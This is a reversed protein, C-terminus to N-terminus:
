KRNGAEGQLTGKTNHDPGAPTDIQMPAGIDVIQTAKKNTAATEDLQHSLNRAATNPIRDARESPSIATGTSPNIGQHSPSQLETRSRRTVSQKTYHSPKNKSSHSHSSSPGAQEDSM